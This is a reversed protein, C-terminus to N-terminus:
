AKSRETLHLRVYKRLVTLLRREDIELEAAMLASSRSPWNLLAEREDSARRLQEERVEAADVLEGERRKRELEKLRGEERERKIRARMLQDPLLKAEIEDSRTEHGEPDSSFGSTVPEPASRGGPFAILVGAGMPATTFRPDGNTLEEPSSSTLETLGTLKKSRKLLDSQATLRRAADEPDVKGDVLVIKGTKVLKSVYPKSFGQQRAWEAQSILPKDIDM